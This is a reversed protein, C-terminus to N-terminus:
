IVLTGPEHYADEEYLLGFKLDYLGDYSQIYLRNDYPVLDGQRALRDAERIPITVTYRQLKRLLWKEPGKSKLMEIWQLSGGNGDPDYRVFVAANKAEDIMQFERAASRFCFKFDRDNKLLERIKKRDLGEDGKAWYLLRFFAEFREPGLPDGAFGHLAEKTSQAAQLLHGPPPDNPPIFIRVIGSPKLGERNCRGGAQAISDLGAMARYVVPFDLDVGAEVLQTSVVRLGEGNRLKERITRIVRSRHEGCMLASLHVTDSPLLRVLERCDKRTNVVCLVSPLELLENALEPWTTPSNWDAPLRIEVRKLQRYLGERDPVIERVSDLGKFNFDATRRSGLAPQTATCFLFTVGYNKQLERIVDLIPYLFDPPLLQAEDLIVVSNTINHIKRCRSTRSAFLSEFFQVSTTVVLPADWNEAALRGKVTEKEPDLNSHHELVAEGFIHRFVDATQEIISTYPIVYIIRDKGHRVAHEMAFALSSLTKGGGTPVSLSFLGPAEAGASRCWKLVDARRRNVPTQAADAAVRKMHDDFTTKLEKCHPYQARNVAKEPTMFQETDLFDADVLCSFIMRIFLSLDRQKLVRIDPQVTPLLIDPPIGRIKLTEDLLHSEELRKSLPMKDLGDKPWYDTLGAHHGAIGYALLRAIVVGDEGFQERLRQVALLAGASSHNVRGAFGELHAEPDYGSQLKIKHQFASHYKGLDHWLGALYGWTQGGFANAFMGSLSGVSRLHDELCHEEFSGDDRQRVHALFIPEKTM